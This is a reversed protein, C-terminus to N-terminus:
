SHMNKSFPWSLPTSPYKYRIRELLYVLVSMWLCVWGSLVDASSQYFMAMKLLCFTGGIQYSFRFFSPLFHLIAQPQDKSSPAAFSPYHQNVPDGGKWRLPWCSPCPVESAWIHVSGGKVSLILNYPCLTHWCGGFRSTFWPHSPVPQQIWASEPQSYLPLGPPSCHATSLQKSQICILVAQAGWLILFFFLAFCCQQSAQPFPLKTRQRQQGVAVYSTIEWFFLSSAWGCGDYGGLCLCPQFRFIYRATRCGWLHSQSKNVDGSMYSPETRTRRHVRVELVFSCPASNQCLAPVLAPTAM